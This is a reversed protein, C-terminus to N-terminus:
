YKKSKKMNLGIGFPIDELLLESMGVIPFLINNFDHAIGGALAGIAEMKQAQQLRNQLDLFETTDRFVSIKSLSGQENTFVTSSVNFSRNDIPSVINNEMQGEKFTEKYPCWPCQKDFGHLATYCFEGVADHGVRGLMAQNMYQIRLDESCIYVPDKIAEMMTRYKTESVKLKDAARRRETLDVGLCTVDVVGGQPDKSIVNSWAINFLEGSKGVIENEYTSFGLTDRQMMVTHFVKRVEERVRDPIFM